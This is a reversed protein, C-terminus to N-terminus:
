RIKLTSLALLGCIISILWFRIIIKSEPIGKLEFHHHLPAMLFIRKGKSVKFYGVQLIVSLTEVVFLGGIIILLLEQKALIAFFGLVGGISLSGVDGMFVQAPYANYWLFGIGAGMLATAFVTVEGAGPVYPVQLYNAVYSNGALYIFIALCASAVTSSGIALGDLGDTLNVANSAGVLVLSAFVIYLIGLDPNLNKFFPIDIATSFNNYEVMCYVVGVSLMLQLVFKQKASLGRNKQKCIKTFDDIFGITGFACFISITYWIYINSLDAWLLVSFVVSVLILIGGMTPTGSKSQHKEVSEHIQQRFKLSKLWELCRPMFFITILLATFFAGASRFTIYRFINLLSISESLPYLFNYLM